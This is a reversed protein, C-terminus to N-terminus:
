AHLPPTPAPRWSHNPGPLPKDPSDHPCCLPRAPPSQLLSICTLFIKCPSPTYLVHVFPPKTQEPRQSATSQEAWGPLFIHGPSCRKPPCSEPHQRTLMSPSCGGPPASGPLLGLHPLLRTGPITPAAHLRWHDTSLHLALARQPSLTHARVWRAHTGLACAAPPTRPAASPPRNGLHHAPRVICAAGPQM